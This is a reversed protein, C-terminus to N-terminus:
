DRNLPWASDVRFGRPVSADRVIRVGVDYTTRKTVPTEDDQTYAEYGTPQKFTAYLTEYPWLRMIGGALFTAIEDKNQSVTSNILKNAAEVTTFSGARKEGIAVIYPINVRNNLLRAELYAFPKGIHREFTHGGLRDEELIDIPYGTRGPAQAPVLLNGLGSGPATWQGGEPGSDKPVRPQRPNFFKDETGGTDVAGDPGYGVATRKEADTLFTAAGIRKWLAEREDSLAEIADLDPRLELGGGYAPGLWVAMAKMSRDVLPLVTERWFARNAELTNDHKNDGPIGLLMPPVGLALAIDRSAQRKSEIFDMDKPSM